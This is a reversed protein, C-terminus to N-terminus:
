AHCDSNQRTEELNEELSSSYNQRLPVISSRSSDWNGLPLSAPQSRMWGQQPQGLHILIHLGDQVCRVAVVVIPQVHLPHAQFVDQPLIVAARVIVLFVQEQVISRPIVRRM